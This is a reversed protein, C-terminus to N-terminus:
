PEIHIKAKNPYINNSRSSMSKYEFKPASSFQIFSKKTKHCISTLQNGLYTLSSFNLDYYRQNQVKSPM